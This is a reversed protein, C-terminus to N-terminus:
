LIEDGHEGHFINNVAEFYYSLQIPMPNGDFLVKRYNYDLSDSFKLCLLVFHLVFYHLTASSSNDNNMDHCIKTLKYLVVLLFPQNLPTAHKNYNKYFPKFQTIDSFNHISFQFINFFCFAAKAPLNLKLYCEGM